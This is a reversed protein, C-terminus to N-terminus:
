TWASKAVEPTIFGMASKAAELTLSRLYIVSMLVLLQIGITLVAGFWVPQLSYNTYFGFILILFLGIIWAVLPSYHEEVINKKSNFKFVPFLSGSYFVPQKAINIFDRAFHFVAYFWLFFLTVSGSLGVGLYTTLDENFISVVSSALVICLIFFRNVRKLIVPLFGGTKFYLGFNAAVYAMFVLAGLFILGDKWNVFLFCSVLILVIYFVLIGVFTKFKPGFETFGRDIVRMLLVLAYVFAPTALIYILFFNAAKQQKLVEASQEKAGVKAFSFENLDFEYVFYIVGCALYAVNILAWYALEKTDFTRSQYIVSSAILLCIAVYPFPISYVLGTPKDILSVMMSVTMAVWFV